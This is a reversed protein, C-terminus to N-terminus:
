NINKIIIKKKFNLQSKLKLPLFIFQISINEYQFNNNKNNCSKIQHSIKKIHDKLINLANTLFIVRDNADNKMSVSQEYDVKLSEYDLKLKNFSDNLLQLSREAESL